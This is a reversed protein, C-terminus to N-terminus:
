SAWPHARYTARPRHPFLGHSSSKGSQLPEAFLLPGHQLRFLRLPPRRPSPSAPERANPLPEFCGCQGADFPRYRTNTPDFPLHTLPRRPMMSPGSKSGPNTNQSSITTLHSTRHENRPSNRPRMLKHAVIQSVHCADSGMQLHVTRSARISLFRTVTEHQAQKRLCHIARLRSHKPLPPYSNCARGKTPHAQKRLCHVIVKRQTRSTDTAEM